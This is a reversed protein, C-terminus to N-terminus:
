DPPIDIISDLIYLWFSEWYKNLLCIIDNLINKNEIKEIQVEIKRIKIQLNEINKKMKIYEDKKVLVHYEESIM